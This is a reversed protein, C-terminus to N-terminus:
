ESASSIEERVSSSRTRKVVELLNRPFKRALDTFLVISTVGGLKERRIVLLYHARHGLAQCVLEMMVTTGLRRILSLESLMIESPPDRELTLHGHEDFVAISVSEEDVYPNVIREPAIELSARSVPLICVTVSRRTSMLGEDHPWITWRIQAAREVAQKQKLYKELSTRVEKWLEHIM